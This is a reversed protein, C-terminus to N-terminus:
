LTHGCDNHTSTSRRAMANRLSSRVTPLGRCDMRRRRQLSAWTASLRTLSWCAVGNGYPCAAAILDQADSVAVSAVYGRIQAYRWPATLLHLGSRPRYCRSLARRRNVAGEYQLDSRPRVTRPLALHRISLLHDPLGSSTVANAPSTRRDPVADLSGDDTHQTQASLIRPHTLHRRECGAANRRDPLWAIEHPDIGHTDIENVITSLGHTAYRSSVACANTTTSPRSCCSGDAHSCATGPSIDARCAHHVCHACADVAILEFAQTGPRRAFFLVRQPDRPDIACGHARMPVSRASFASSMSRCVASM